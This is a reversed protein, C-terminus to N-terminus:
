RRRFTPRTWRPWRRWRGAARRGAGSHPYVVARAGIQIRRYESPDLVLVARLAAPDGVRCLESGRELWRGVSEAPQLGLVVGARPARVLLSDRQRRLLGAQRRLAELEFGTQQVDGSAGNEARPSETLWAVQAQQQQQRLRQDEENLRCAVELKPNTLVALVQGASVAEGDRVRLEALFGGCEPVPVRDIQGPEVEITALASASDPLPVLTVFGAAALLLGATLGLRTWSMQTWRGQRVAARAVAVAPWVLSVAITALCALLCLIGLKYPQLFLYLAYFTGALVMWRYVFSAAAYGAVLRDRGRGLSAPREAPLGLWRLVLWRLTRTATDSLNPLDALDSLLYYGDFRMLPNANVVLTGAGCVVLVAFALHHTLCAPNSAWWLLAAMSAVLLEVYVGAAAVAARQWRGPLKWADTVNCYLAPFFFIVLVGMEHVEGGLARCCLAHGFEHLVKVVFFAATLYLLTVPTFFTRYDPLRHLFASWHSLVVGVALLVMVATLLLGPTRFLWGAWPLLRGLLRDPDFLPVKVSLFNVLTARRDDRRRKQTQQWLLPGAQPAENYALGNNVLQAAFTELEELTVRDPRRAAEYLRQVDELTRNGDFLTLVFQQREDLRYYRLGVPDKVVYTTRGGETRPVVLLNRRLRLRVKKRGQLDSAAALM